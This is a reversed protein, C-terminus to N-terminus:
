EGTVSRLEFRNTGEDFEFYHLGTDAAIRTTEVKANPGLEPAADLTHRGKLTGVLLIGTPRQEYVFGEEQEPPKPVHEKIGSPGQPRPVYEWATGDEPRRYWASVERYQNNRLRLGINAGGIVIHANDSYPSQRWGHGYFGWFFNTDVTTRWQTFIGIGNGNAEFYNGSVVAEGSSQLLLGYGKNAEFISGSIHVANSAWQGRDPGIVLGHRNSRRFTCGVISLNNGHSRAQMGTGNGLLVCERFRLQWAYCIHIGIKQGTIKVNSFTTNKPVAEWGIAIGCGNRRNERTLRIGEIHYAAGELDPPNKLEIIPIGAEDEEPEPEVLEQEDLAAGGHLTAGYGSVHLGWHASNRGIVLTRDIRYNGPPIFLRAGATFGNEKSISDIAAQIAPSWDGDVVREAFNAVNVRGASDLMSADVPGNPTEADALAPWNLVLCLM